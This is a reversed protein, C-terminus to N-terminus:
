PAGTASTALVPAGADDREVTRRHRVDLEGRTKDREAKAAAVDFYFLKQQPLQTKPDVYVLMWAPSQRGTPLNDEVWKKQEPTAKASPDGSYVRAAITSKLDTDNKAYATGNFQGRQEDTVAFSPVINNKKLHLRFAENKIVAGKNVGAPSHPNLIIDGTEEVAMGAVNPNDKFYKEEGPFLKERVSFGLHSRAGTNEFPLKRGAKIAEIEAVTGPLTVLGYTPLTPAVNFAGPTAAFTGFNQGFNEIGVMKAVEAEVQKKMWDRSGGVTPFVADPLTEPAHMMVRGGGSPSVAWNLKIRDDAFKKAAAKDGDFAAYGEAYLDAYQEKYVAMGPAERSGIPKQPDSFWSDDLTSLLDKDSMDSVIKRAEKEANERAKITAPDSARNLKERFAGPDQNASSQWAMLTKATDKDFSEAFAKPNRRYMADLTSMAYGLQKADGGRIMGELTGKVEKSVMGIEAFRYTAIEAAEPISKQLGAVVGTRVDIASLGKKDADDLPNWIASGDKMKTIANQFISDDTEAKARQGLLQKRRPESLLPDNEIDERAPLMGRGESADQILRAYQGGVEVDNRAQTALRTQDFQNEWFLARAANPSEPAAAQAGLKAYDMVSTGNADKVADKGDSQLARKAGGAGGLHMMAHLGERTIAVGGVTKGIYQDLGQESIERDMKQVHLGYAARQAEPSALFDQLTKVNEHGPINFTGSWKGAASRPSKSWSKLDEGQGPTYIGIDAARPAGFQYLGAYGLPNVRAPNGGSERRVLASEFGGGTGRVPVSGFYRDRLEAAEDLRGARQLGAIASDVIKQRAAVRMEDFKQGGLVPKAGTLIEDSKSLAANVDGGALAESALVDLNKQTQDGLQRVRENHELTVGQVLVATRLDSAKSQIIRQARTSPRFGEGHLNDMTERDALDLKSTLVSQMGGPANVAAPDQRANLIEQQYRPKARLEWTDIAVRDEADQRDRSLREGIAGLEAGINQTAQGVQSGFADGSAGRVGPDRAVGVQGISEAGPIRIVAM